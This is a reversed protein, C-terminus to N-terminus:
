FSHLVHFLPSKKIKTALWFTSLGEDNAEIEHLLNANQFRSLHFLILKKINFHYNIYSSQIIQFIPSSLCM